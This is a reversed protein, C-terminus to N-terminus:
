RAARERKGGRAEEEAVTAELITSPMDRGRYLGILQMPADVGRVQAMFASGAEADYGAHKAVEASMVVQFGHAKTLAELRSAVNVVEGVVTLAMAEGFGMRGLLLTGAHIGIGVRLLSGIEGSLKANVHDVALDIARAARLAQRCGAELGLHQGFVALLGDGLFKDIWGDHAKIATGAAAFFENLIYVVDYALRRHSLQTFDRLDLFMVALPKEVGSSDGEDLDASEPGTTLPHLLRTVAVDTQPRIQCALRVNRPAGIMALTVAEPFGPEELAQNGEDVRVRCTSCRARGGCVAAHPVSHMRSIELLTPGAYAGVTPGASYKVHLQPRLRMLVYSRVAYAATLALLVSFCVRVWTRYEALAANGAANPWATLEKVRALRQPDSILTEVGRGSVMFGGIAALPVAIALWQLAPRSARYLPNMRLCFHIGICGHIWVILLFVSQYIGSDPWLRALEYIYIDNVDFAIRAVRTNVIHPFLFFPIILGLAIQLVEWRPLKLTARNALKWLALGMHTVLAMLLVFTGPVSRTVAMRWTQVEHMADLSFLGLAHNCFHTAAFAFLILGSAIRLQQATGGRLLVHM